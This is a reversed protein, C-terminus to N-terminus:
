QNSCWSSRHNSAFVFIWSLIWCESVCFVSALVFHIKSCYKVVSSSHLVAFSSSIKSNWSRIKLTNCHVQKSHFMMWCEGNVMWPHIVAVMSRSSDTWNFLVYYQLWTKPDLPFIHKKEAEKETQINLMLLLECKQHPTYWIKPQNAWLVWCCLCNEIRETSLFRMEMWSGISFRKQWLNMWQM